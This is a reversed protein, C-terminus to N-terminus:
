GKGPKKLVLTKAGQVAELAYEIGILVYILSWLIDLHLEEVAKYAFLLALVIALLRRAEFRM